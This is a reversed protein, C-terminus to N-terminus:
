TPPPESNRIDLRKTKYKSFDHLPQSSPWIQSQPNKTFFYLVQIYQANGFFAAPPLTKYLQWNHNSFRTLTPTGSHNFWLHEM